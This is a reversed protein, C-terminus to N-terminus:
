RANWRRKLEVFQPDKLLSSNANGIQELVSEIGYPWVAANEPLIASLLALTKEPNQDVMNDELRTLDHRSDQDIKTVLPLIIDVRDPFAAADSFALDCLRATLRPTKASKQRPWVETLFLPLQKTWNGNEEQAESPWRKLQWLVNSRFDDDANVLVDRMEVSTVCRGGTRSDVTGWGVLVIAALVELHNRQTISKQRALRLLYPKLRM